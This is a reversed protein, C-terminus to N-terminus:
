WSKWNWTDEKSVKINSKYWEYFTGKKFDEPEASILLRKKTHLRHSSCLNCDKSQLFLYSSKRQKAIIETQEEHPSLLIMQKLIPFLYFFGGYGWCWLISSRWKTRETYTALIIWLNSASTIFYPKDRKYYQGLCGLGTSVWHSM